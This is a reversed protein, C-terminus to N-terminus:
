HKDKLANEGRIASKLREVVNGSGGVTEYKVPASPHRWGVAASVRLADARRQLADALIDDSVGAHSAAALLQDLRDRFEQRPFNEPKRM